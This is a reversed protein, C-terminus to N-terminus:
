LHICSLQRLFSAWWSHSSASSLSVVRSAVSLSYIQWKDTIDRWFFTLVHDYHDHHITLTFTMTNSLINTNNDNNISAEKFYGGV